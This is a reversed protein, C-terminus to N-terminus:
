PVALGGRPGGRVLLNRLAFVIWKRSIGPARTTLASSRSGLPDDGPGRSAASTWGVAAGGSARECRTRYVDPSTGTRARNGVDIEGGRCLVVSGCARMPLARPRPRRCRRLRLTQTVASGGFRRTSSGTEFSARGPGRRDSTMSATLSLREIQQGGAGLSAARQQKAVVVEVGTSCPLGATPRV